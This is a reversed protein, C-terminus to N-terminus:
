PQPEPPRGHCASLLTAFLRGLDEARRRFQKSNQTGKLEGIIAALPAAGIAGPPVSVAFRGLREEDGDGAASRAGVALMAAVAQASLPEMSITPRPSHEEFACVPVYEVEEKLYVAFTGAGTAIRFLEALGGAAARRDSIDLVSLSRTFAAVTGMDVAIRRELAGIEAEARELGDCLDSELRRSVDLQEALESYQHIHLSRIAGFVLATALWAAPQIAVMRGYAYFDQAASQPFLWLLYLASAAVTAIIGGGVGYQVSIILVPIWYLTSLRTVEAIDPFRHQLVAVGGVLVLAELAQRGWGALPEPRAPAPSAHERSPRSGASMKFEPPASPVAPDFRISAAAM